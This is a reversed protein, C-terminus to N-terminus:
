LELGEDFIMVVQTDGVTLDLVQTEKGPGLLDIAARPPVAASFAPATALGPGAPGDLLPLGVVAALLLSAAAAALSRWLSTRREGGLAEAVNRSVEDLVREPPSVRGLLSFIRAPDRAALRSRCAPCGLLHRRTEARAEGRLSAFDALEADTPHRSM